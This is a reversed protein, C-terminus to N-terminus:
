SCIREIKLFVDIAKQLALASAALAIQAQTPEERVTWLHKECLTFVLRTLEQAKQEFEAIERRHSEKDM